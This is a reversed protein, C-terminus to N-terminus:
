KVARMYQRKAKRPNKDYQLKERVQAGCKCKSLLRPNRGLEGKLCYGCYFGQTDVGCVWLVGDMEMLVRDTRM